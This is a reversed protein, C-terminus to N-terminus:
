ACRPSCDSRDRAWSSCKPEASWACRRLSAYSAQVRRDGRCAHHNAANASLRCEPAPACRRRRACGRRARRRPVGDRARKRGRGGPAHRARPRRRGGAVAGLVAGVSSLALSTGVVLNTIAAFYGVMFLNSAISTLLAVAYLVGIHLRGSWALIPLSAYLGLRVVDCGIMLRRRHVRDVIVGAFPTALLQGGAAVATVTGMGAVSHTADLVLLPMAVFGFADGLQSAAQGFWFRRFARSSAGLDAMPARMM